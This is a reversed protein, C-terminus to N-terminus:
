QMTRKADLSERQQPLQPQQQHSNTQQEVHPQWAVVLVVAVAAAVVGVAVVVSDDVAEAMCAADVKRAVDVTGARDKEDDAESRSAEDRAEKPAAVVGAGVAGVAGAGVRMEVEVEDAQAARLAGAVEEGAGIAALAVDGIM